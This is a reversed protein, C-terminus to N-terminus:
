SNQILETLENELYFREIKLAMLRCKKQPSEPTERLARVLAFIERNIAELKQKTRAIRYRARVKQM